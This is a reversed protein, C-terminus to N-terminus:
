ANVRVPLVMYIYGKEDVPSIVCPSVATNFKMIFEDDDIVKLVDSVYKVNFAIDLESGQTDTQVEEYIDGMEANSTITLMDPAIHLKILNSKGERAMLSARDVCLSMQERDLVRVVTGASAPIIRRYDIYEGELLTAYLRVDGFSILIQSDSFTIKATDEDGGSLIKGLESLLRGPIVASIQSDIDDVRASAVALRFGDLAVMRAEGDRLEFLCGTLIKRAEDTSVAFATRLIMDRIIPQPLTVSKKEEVEGLRPFQDAAKVSLTTRSGGCRITAVHNVGITVSVQGGPFRRSVDMFLRGPMVVGGDEAVDAQVTMTITMMGDTCTLTLRDNAADILIGELAPMTSRASLAHTVVGLAENLLNADVTFKM